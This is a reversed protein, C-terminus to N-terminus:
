DTDDNSDGRWASPTVGTYKKFVQSFYRQSNYGVMNCVDQVKFESERLLRCAEEMRRETLLDLFNRGAEKRFLHSLYSPNISFIESLQALSLDEQYHDHIYQTAKTLLNQSRMRYQLRVQEALELVQKQMFSQLHELNSLALLRCLAERESSQNCVSYRNLMIFLHACYAFISEPDCNSLELHEFIKRLSVAAQEPQGLEV